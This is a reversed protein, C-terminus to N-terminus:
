WWSDHDELFANDLQDCPCLHCYKSRSRFLVPRLSVLQRDGVASELFFIAKKLGAWNGWTKRKLIFAFYSVMMM